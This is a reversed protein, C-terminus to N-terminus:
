QDGDIYLRASYSHQPLSTRLDAFHVVFKQGEKAEIYGTITKQDDSEKKSHISVAQDDIEIWVAFNPLTSSTRLDIWRSLLM